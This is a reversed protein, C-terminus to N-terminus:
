EALALGTYKLVKRPLLESLVLVTTFLDVVTFAFTILFLRKAAPILEYYAIVFAPRM